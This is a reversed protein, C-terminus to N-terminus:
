KGEDNRAASKAAPKAEAQAAAQNEAHESELLWGSQRLHFMSEEPVVVTADTGPHYARVDSM